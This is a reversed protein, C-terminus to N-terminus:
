LGDVRINSSEKNEYFWKVGWKSEIGRKMDFGRVIVEIDSNEKNRM